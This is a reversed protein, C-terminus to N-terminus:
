TTQALVTACTRRRRTRTCERPEHCRLAVELEGVRQDVPDEPEAEALEGVEAAGLVVAVERQRELLRLPALVLVDGLLDPDVAAAAHEVEAAAPPRQEVEDALALASPTPTVSEGGLGLGAPAVPEVGPDGVGALDVRSPKPPKSATALRPAKSCKQEGSSYRAPRWSRSRRPATRWRRRDAGRRRGDRGASSPRRGCCSRGRALGRM